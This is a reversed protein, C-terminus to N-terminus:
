PRRFITAALLWVNEWVLSAVCFNSVIALIVSTFVSSALIGSTFVLKGFYCETKLKELWFLVVM